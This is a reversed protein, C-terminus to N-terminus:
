AGGSDKDIASYTPHLVGSLTLAIAYSSLAKLHVDFFLAL